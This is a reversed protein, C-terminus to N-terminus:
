GRTNPVPKANQGFAARAVPGGREGARTLRALSVSTRRTHTAGPESGPSREGLHFTKTQVGVFTVLPKKLSLWSGGTHVLRSACVCFGPLSPDSM